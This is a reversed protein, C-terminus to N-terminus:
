LGIARLLTPLTARDPVVMLRGSLPPEHITHLRTEVMVVASRGACDSIFGSLVERGTGRTMEPSTPLLQLRTLTGIASLCASCLVNALEALASQGPEYAQDAQRAGLLLAALERADDESWVVLMRGTISGEIGVGAAIVPADEDFLRLIEEGRAALVRPVDICVVNGGVMRSLATAAHGCGINAIERLADLELESHTETIV